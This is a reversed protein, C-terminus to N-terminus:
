QYFIPLMIQGRQFRGFALAFDDVGDQIPTAHQTLREVHSRSAGGARPTPTPPTARDRPSHSAIKREGDKIGGSGPRALVRSLEVGGV